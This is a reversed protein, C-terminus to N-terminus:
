RIEQCAREKCVDYLLQFKLANFQNDVKLEYYTDATSFVIGWRGHMSFHIIQDLPITTGGCTLAELTMTVPGQDILSEEHNAVTSLAANGATYCLADDAAQAVQNKQWHYLEQVTQFPLGTLMGYQDYRFAFNCASCTVTDGRSSITDVAGCEPCIFLLNEMGEASSKSSYRAPSLAQRAYADEHLDRCIADNVETATMASLQEPTYINVPTGYVRGRRTKAGAWRPSAFYGGEIRFTVLGCRAKQIMKGTSPLIPGTVGDWCRAGEAFLCVNSGNRVTRLMEMVTSSATTGKSRTIFGAWYCLLGYLWKWRAVHESGVFYMQNPFSAAVMLFDFDTTHNSLVIYKEPLNKAKKFTYGFKIYLFIIAIPRILKYFITHRKNM